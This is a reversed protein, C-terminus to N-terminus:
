PKKKPPQNKSMRKLAMIFIAGTLGAGIAAEALAIDVAQLRLWAVAMLMGFSIFLVIAKFLDKATLATWALGVLTLALLLDFIPLTANITEEM